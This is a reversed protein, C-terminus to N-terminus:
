CNGGCGCGCSTNDDVGNPPTWGTDDGVYTIAGNPCLSGCGHCGEVCGNENIVIPTPAKQADYVGHSCMEICSGCEACNTYDIVPYWKRSM